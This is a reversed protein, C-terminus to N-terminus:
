TELILVNEDTEYQDAGVPLQQFVLQDAERHANFVKQLEEYNQFSYHLNPPILQLSTRIELFGIVFM